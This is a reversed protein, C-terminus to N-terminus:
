GEARRISRDLAFCANVNAGLSRVLSGLRELFGDAPVLVRDLRGGVVAVHDNGIPASPRPVRAYPHM